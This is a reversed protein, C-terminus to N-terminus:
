RGSSLGLNRGYPGPGAKMEPGMEEAEIKLVKLCNAKKLRQVYGNTTLEQREGDEETGQLPLIRM